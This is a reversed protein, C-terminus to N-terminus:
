LDSFEKLLEVKDNLAANLMEESVEDHPRRQLETYSDQVAQNLVQMNREFAARTQPNWRMMRNEVRQQWYDIAMQQPRMYDSVSSASANMVMPNSSNNGLRVSSFNDSASATFPIEEASATQVHRVSFATALSVSIAVAAVATALQPLSLQWSRNMVRSWWSQQGESGVASRATERAAANQESEIINRIRLWMARENPLRDYDGRCDRCVTVISELEKHVSACSLCEVLHATIPARLQHELAGDLFDSLLKQCKECEM